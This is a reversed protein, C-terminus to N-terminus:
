PTNTRSGGFPLEANDKIKIVTRQRSVNVIGTTLNWTVVEGTILGSQSEVRADGSLVIIENTSTPTVALTYVAQEGTAHIPKGDKDRHDIVVNRDALMYDPREATKESRITLVECTLKADGYTAQVNGTYVATYNTETRLEGHDSQIDILNTATLSTGSALFPQAPPAANTSATEQTWAACPLAAVVISLLLTKM